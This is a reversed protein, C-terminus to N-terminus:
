PQYARSVTLYLSLRNHALNGIGHRVRIIKYKLEGLAPSRLFFSNSPISTRPITGNKGANKRIAAIHLLRWMSMAHGINEIDSTREYGKDHQEGDDVHAFFGGDFIHFTSTAALFAIVVWCRDIKAPSFNSEFASYIVPSEYVHQYSHDLVRLPNKLLLSDSPLDPADHLLSFMHSPVFLAPNRGFHPRPGRRKKNLM